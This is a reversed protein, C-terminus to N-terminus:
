RLAAKFREHDTRPAKNLGYKEIDSDPAMVTVRGNDVNVKWESVLPFADIMSAEHDTMRTVTCKKGFSKITPLNFNWVQGDMAFHGIPEQNHDKIVYRSM